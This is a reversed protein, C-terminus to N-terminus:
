FPSLSCSQLTSGIHIEIFLRTNLEALKISKNQNCLHLMLTTKYSRQCAFLRNTSLRVRKLRNLMTTAAVFAPTKRFGLLALRLPM